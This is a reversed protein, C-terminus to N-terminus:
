GVGPLAWYLMSQSSEYVIILHLFCDPFLESPNFFDINVVDWGYGGGVGINHTHEILADSCVSTNEFLKISYIYM